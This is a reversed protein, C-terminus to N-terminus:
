YRQSMQYEMRMATALEIYHSKNEMMYDINVKLEELTGDNIFDIFIGDDAGTETKNELLSEDPPFGDRDELRRLREAVNSKIRIPVYGREMGVVYENHQRCDSIIVKDFQEALKYTNNVWVLPDIERMKQGINQLLGRNKATMGFLNIAISYIGDAFAIKVYGHKAVLHNAFSDKGAGSRGNLLIKNM